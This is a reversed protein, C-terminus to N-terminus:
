SGLRCECVCVSVRSTTVPRSSVVGGPSSVFLGFAVIISDCVFCFSSQLCFICESM